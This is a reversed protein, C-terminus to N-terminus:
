ILAQKESWTIIAQLGKVRTVFSELQEDDSDFPSINVVFPPPNM